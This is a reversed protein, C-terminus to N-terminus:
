RSRKLYDSGPISVYARSKRTSEGAVYLPADALFMFAMLAFAAATIVQMIM